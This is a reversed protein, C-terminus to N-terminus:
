VEHHRVQFRFFSNVWVRFRFIDDIQLPMHIINVSSAERLERSASRVKITYQFLYSHRFDSPYLKLFMVDVSKATPRPKMSSEASYSIEYSRLLRGSIGETRKKISTTFLDNYFHM